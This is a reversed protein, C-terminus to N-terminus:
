KLAIDLTVDVPNGIVPDLRTTAMGFAHRDIQGTAHYTPRGPSGGISVALRESQTVGHMTLLGDMTFANPGAPSIKTSAFTWAPYKKTDFWDPTQLVGDRDDDGTKIQTADLVADVRVPVASGAQLVVSGSAIPVTGVVHEVYIHQVSFQAKSKQADIAFPMPAPAAAVCLLVLATLIPSHGRM